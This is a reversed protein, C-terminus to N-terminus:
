SASAQSLLQVIKFPQAALRRAWGLGFAQWTPLAAMFMTRRALFEACVSAGGDRAVREAVAGLTEPGIDGDEAVGVTQQLLVGARAVGNNVASDFVLLALPPPLRDGAIPTWYDRQYIAEADALTLAGIDLTPYAGASIGFKSGKLAGQGIEGGTWNGADRPDLSLDSGEFGVTMAFALGFTSMAACAVRARPGDDGRRAIATM